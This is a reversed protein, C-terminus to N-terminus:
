SEDTPECTLEYRNKGTPLLENIVAVKIKAGSEDEYVFLTALKSPSLKATGRAHLQAGGVKLILERIFQVPGVKQLLADFEPQQALLEQVTM